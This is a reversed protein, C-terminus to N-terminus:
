VKLKLDHRRLVIEVSDLIHRVNNHCTNQNSMGIVPDYWGTEFDGSNEQKQKRKFLIPIKRFSVPVKYKLGYGLYTLIRSGFACTLIRFGYTGAIKRLSFMFVILGDLSIGRNGIINERIQFRIKFNRSIDQRQSVQRLVYFFIMWM